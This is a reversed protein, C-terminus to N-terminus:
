SVYFFFVSLTVFILTIKPIYISKLFPNEFDTWSIVVLEKSERSCSLICLNAKQFLYSMAVSRSFWTLISIYAYCPSPVLTLYLSIRTDGITIRWYEVPAHPYSPLKTETLENCGRLTSCSHHSGPYLTTVRPVCPNKQYQSYEARKPIQLLDFGTDHLRPYLWDMARGQHRWQTFVLKSDIYLSPCAMQNPM